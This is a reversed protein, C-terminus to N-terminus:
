KVLVMKKTMTYKDTLIRYFYVGSSLSSGNFSVTYYNAKIFENNLLRSIERGSIDYILLSVKSDVPLAFDIKTTPNFPNPYNQSIDFKAPVGVEVEGELEYFHFNGNFDIQKLRYNYKGADLKKDEFAYDTPTGKTGKGSVFGAKEWESPQISVASRQIEFGSNNEESETKWMLTVNRSNVKYTFSSLTVPLPQPNEWAGMTPFSMDRTADAFDKTIGTGSAGIILRSSTKYDEPTNGGALTLIPDTNLSNNDLGTVIPIVSKNANGYYGLEGGTGTVYYDNNSLTLNASSGYNFYIAYHYKAAGADTTSRGNYLVNNRFYRTSSLGDSYLCYSLNASGAPMTGDFYITNFYMNNTCGSYGHEFIGYLTSKGNGGLKIINNAFVGSGYFARIGMIKASTSSADSAFLNTIFNRSITKSTTTGYYLIGNIYGNFSANNNEIGNVTNNIIDAAGNSNNKLYIGSASPPDQSFSLDSTRLNKITNNSVTGTVGTCNIGSILSYSNTSRNTLNAVTNGTISNIGPGGAYIGICEQSNSTSLSSVDISNSDNTSGITNSAIALNSASQSTYIGYFHTSYSSSENATKIAGITNGSITGLCTAYIGYFKGSNLGNSFFISRTGAASGITNGTVTFTGAGLYIGYFDPRNDGSKWSINKIVNGNLTALSSNSSLSVDIGYFNVGNNTSKRLTDTNGQVSGGIVNNTIIHGTGGFIQIYKVTMSYSFTLTSPEYFSNNEITLDTTYNNVRIVNVTGSSYSTNVIDYFTNYRIINGSNEKGAAQGQTYIACNPKGASSKTFTNYQIVNNDNGDTAATKSIYIVGGTVNQTAGKITCYQIKNGKADNEFIVASTSDTAINSANELTLVSSGSGNIRGDITVNDAGNLSIVPGAVNGGLTLGAADPSITVSTYSSSGSGSANLVARSTEYVSGKIKVSVTGTHTGDNIKDFAEKLTFYEASILKSTATVSVSKREFAGIAPFGTSRTIGHYDKPYSLNVNGTMNINIKYDEPLTGGANTFQPDTNFSNADIINYTATRWATLTLADTSNM